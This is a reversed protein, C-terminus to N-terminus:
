PEEVIFPYTAADADTNAKVTKGDAITVNEGLTPDYAFKGGEVVFRGRTWGANLGTDFYLQKKFSGGKITVLGPDSNMYSNRIQNYTGSRIEYEHGDTWLIGNVTLNELIIKGAFSDSFGSKGDFCDGTSSFTGNRLTLTGSHNQIFFCGNHSYGNLDMTGNEATITKSYSTNESWTLTGSGKANFASLANDFSTYYYGDFGAKVASLGPNTISYRTNSAFKRSTSKYVIGLLNDGSDYAYISFGNTLTEVPAVEIYAKGATIPLSIEDSGISHWDSAATEPNISLPGAVPQSANSHFVIRSISANNTSFCILAFPHRFSFRREADECGAVCTFVNEYTQATPISVVVNGEDVTLGSGCNSAPYVAYYEPATGLTTVTFTASYGDVSIDSAALTVDEWSTGNSIRIVDGEEWTMKGSNYAVKTAEFGATFTIGEKTPIDNAPEKACSFAAAAAALFLITKRM